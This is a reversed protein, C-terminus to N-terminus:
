CGDYAAWPQEGYQAYLRDFASEQQAVSAEGATGPLGLSAWTSPLIGFMGASSATPNDGSEHWAVCQEFASMGSTPSVSSPAAAPSPGQTTATPPPAHGVSNAQTAPAASHRSPRTAALHDRHSQHESHLRHAATAVTPKARKPTTKHASTKVTRHVPQQAQHQPAHGTGAEVVAWSSLATGAIAAPVIATLTIKKIKMPPYGAEDAM